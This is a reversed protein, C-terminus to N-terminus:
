KAWRENNVIKSIQQFSVGYKNALGTLSYESKVGPKGPKYLTRIEDIQMQTLKSNGIQEGRLVLEPHKKSRHAKGKASRGKRKMDALNEKQTAVFLHEPNVCTPNDCKHCVVHGDPIPGNIASWAFRHAYINKKKVTFIGYGNPVNAAKWVWCSDTIELKNMFREPLKSEIM